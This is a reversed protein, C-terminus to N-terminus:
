ERWDPRANLWDRAPMRRKGPSQLETIDLAGEGCIVRIVEGGPSGLVTGPAGSDRIVASRAALVRVPEGALEGYAVPWPNYARVMAALREAPLSWDLRADEKRIRPAHTVQREDQAVPEPLRGAELRELAFILLGAAVPALTDHLAGASMEPGILVSKQLLVPGSDLGAEMIMLSVGSEADQHLIAQQIPSAGRWRPLISAHLNWCGHRPSDLVTKPLILGYAATVLLDPELAELPARSEPTKLTTPQMVEIGHHRALRKVPSETLKRGRGAPRDPQTLVAVPTRGSQVLAELAPCAFDPTGAFIIRM